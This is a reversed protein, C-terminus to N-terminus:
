NEEIKQEELKEIRKQLNILLKHMEENRAKQDQINKELKLRIAKEEKFAEILLPVINGYKVSKYGTSPNTGVLEPIIAEVEQAILGYQLETSFNYDPFEEHRMVYNVGRFSSITDSANEIPTINKKLREDSNYYYNDATVDDGVTVDSNTVITGRVNLGSTFVTHVNPQGVVVYDDDGKPGIYDVYLGDIDRIEQNNPASTQSILKFNAGSGVEITGASSGTLAINNGSTLGWLISSGSKVNLAAQTGIPDLTLAATVNTGSIAGGTAPGVRIRPNGVVGNFDIYGEDDAIWHGEEDGDIISACSQVIKDTANDVQCSMQITFSKNEAGFTANNKVKSLNFTLNCEGIVSTTSSGNDFASIVLSDVKWDRATPIPQGFTFENDGTGRSNFAGTSLTTASTIDRGTFANGGNVQAAICNNTKALRSKLNGEFNGLSTKASMTKLSKNANQNIQMVGMAVMVSIAAAVTVEVLSMGKQNQLIFKKM